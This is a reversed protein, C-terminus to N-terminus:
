ETIGGLKNNMCSYIQEEDQKWFEPCDESSFGLKWMLLNDTENLM